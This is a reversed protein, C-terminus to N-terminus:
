RNSRYRSIYRSIFAELGSKAYRTKGLFTNKIRILFQENTEAEFGDSIASANTVSSIGDISDTLITLKEKGVGTGVGTELSVVSVPFEYRNTTPNFYANANTVSFIATAVVQYVIPTADRTQIRKGVEITISNTFSETIFLATGRASTAPVRTMEFNQGFADIVTFPLNAGNNFIDNLRELYDIQQWIPNFGGALPAEIFIDRETSGEVLDLEPELNDYSQLLDTRITELTKAM